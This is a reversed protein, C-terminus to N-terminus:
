LDLQMQVAGPGGVPDSKDSKDSKFKRAMSPLVPIAKSKRVEAKPHPMLWPDAADPAILQGDFIKKIAHVARIDEDDPKGEALLISEYGTYIVGDDFCLLGNDADWIYYQGLAKVYQRNM